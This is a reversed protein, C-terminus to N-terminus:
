WRSSVTDRGGSRLGTECNRLLIMRYAFLAVEFRNSDAAGKWSLTAILGGAKATPSSQPTLSWPVVPNLTTARM